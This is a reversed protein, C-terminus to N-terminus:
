DLSIRISELYSASLCIARFNGHRNVTRRRMRMLTALIAGQVEDLDLFRRRGAPQRSTSVPKGDNDRSNDDLEESQKDAGRREGRALDFAMSLDQFKAQDMQKPVIKEDKGRGSEMGRKMLFREFRDVGRGAGILCSVDV